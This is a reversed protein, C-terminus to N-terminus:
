KKNDSVKQDTESIILGLFPLQVILNAGTAATPYRIQCSSKSFGEQRHDGDTPRCASSRM